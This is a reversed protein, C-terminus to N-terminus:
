EKDRPPKKVENIIKEYKEPLLSYQGWREVMIRPEDGHAKLAGHVFLTRGISKRDIHRREDHSPYTFVNFEDFNPTKLRIINRSSLRIFKTIKGFYLLEKDFYEEDAKEADVLVDRLLVPFQSKPFYFYKTLNQPFNNCLSYVSSVISPVKFSQGDHRGLPIDVEEGEKDELQAKNFQAEDNKHDLEPPSEAWAGIIALSGDEIAQRVSEESSYRKGAPTSTRLDCPIEDKYGPKHRFHLSNGSTTISDKSPVKLLPVSCAPCYINNKMNEEYEEPTVEEGISILHKLSHTQFQFTTSFYGFPIRHNNEM